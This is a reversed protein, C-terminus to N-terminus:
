KGYPPLLSEIRRALASVFQRDDYGLRLDADDHIKRLKQVDERTFGFPQGYLALAALGHITLWGDADAENKAHVLCARREEPSRALQANWEEPPMAPGNM